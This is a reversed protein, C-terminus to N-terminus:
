RRLAAAEADDHSHRYAPVISGSTMSARFAHEHGVGAMRLTEYFYGQAIMEVGACFMCLTASGRRGLPEIM